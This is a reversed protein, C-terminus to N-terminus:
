KDNEVANSKGREVADQAFETGPGFEVHETLLRKIEEVNKECAQVHQKLDLIEESLQVQYSSLRKIVTGQLQIACNVQRLLIEIESLMQRESRDDEEGQFIRPGWYRFSM